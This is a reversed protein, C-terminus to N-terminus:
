FITTRFLSKLNQAVLAGLPGVKNMTKINHNVTKKFLALILQLYLPGFSDNTGVQQLNEMNEPVSQTLMNLSLVSLIRSSPDSLLPDLTLEAVAWDNGGPFVEDGMYSIHCQEPLKKLLYRFAFDKPVHSTIDISTNGGELVSINKLSPDTSFARKFGQIVKSRVDRRLAPDQHYLSLNHRWSPFPSVVVKGTTVTAKARNKRFHVPGSIVANMAEEHFTPTIRDTINRIKQALGEKFKTLEAYDLDERLEGDMIEFYRTASDTFLGIGNMAEVLGKHRAIKLLPEIVKNVQNEYSGASIFYIPFGCSIFFFILELRHKYEVDGLTSIEGPNKQSQLRILTGDIDLTTISRFIADQVWAWIGQYDSITADDLDMGDHLAITKWLSIQQKPDKIRLDQWPIKPNNWVADKPPL